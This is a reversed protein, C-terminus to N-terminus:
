VKIEEGHRLTLYCRCETRRSIAKNSGIELFDAGVKVEHMKHCAWNNKFIAWFSCLSLSQFLNREQGINGKLWHSANSRRVNSIQWRLQLISRGDGICPPPKTCHMSHRAAEETKKCLLGPIQDHGQGFRCNQPQLATPTRTALNVATICDCYITCAPVQRAHEKFSFSYTSRVVYICHKIFM